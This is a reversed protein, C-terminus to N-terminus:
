KPSWFSLRGVPTGTRRSQQVESSVALSNENGGTPTTDHALEIQQFYQPLEDVTVDSTEEKSLQQQTEEGENETNTVNGMDTIFRTSFVLNVM